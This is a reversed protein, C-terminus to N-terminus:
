RINPPFRTEIKPASNHWAVAWNLGRVSKVWRDQQSPGGIRASDLCIRPPASAQRKVHEWPRTTKAPFDRCLGHNAHETLPHQSQWAIPLGSQNPLFIMCLFPQHDSSIDELIFSAIIQPIWEYVTSFAYSVFMLGIDLIM